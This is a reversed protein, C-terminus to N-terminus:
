LKYVAIDLAKEFNESKSPYTPTYGYLFDTFLTYFYAIM